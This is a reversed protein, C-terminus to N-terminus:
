DDNRWQWLFLLSLAAAIPTPDPGGSVDFPLLARNFMAVNFWPVLLLFWVIAARWLSRAAIVGLPVVMMVADHSCLYPPVLMTAAALIAAKSHWDRRWSQAVLLGGAVATLAQGVFAAPSNLGWWRLFAYTSSLQSWEWFREPLVGGFHGISKLWALYIEPGFAIAALLILLASSAAAAAFAKWQRGSALAVPIFVGLHPKIIMLGLIAGAILPRRKIFNLGGFLIASTLFGTQAWKVNYPVTPNALAIRLPQRATAVYLIGSVSLFLLLSVQVPMLAFLPAILLFPPPHPLPWLEGLPTMHTTYAREPQGALVNAGADWFYYFDSVWGFQLRQVSIQLIKWAFVAVILWIAVSVAARARAPWLNAERGEDVRM